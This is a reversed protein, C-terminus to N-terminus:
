DELKTDRLRYVLRDADGRVIELRGSVIVQGDPYDLGV